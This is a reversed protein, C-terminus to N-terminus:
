NHFTLYAGDIKGRVIRSTTARLHVARASALFPRVVVFQKRDRLLDATMTTSSELSPPAVLNVAGRKAVVPVLSPSTISEVKTYDWRRTSRIAVDASALKSSRYLGIVDNGKATTAGMISDIEGPNMPFAIAKLSDLQKM